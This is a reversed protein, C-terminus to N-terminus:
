VFVPADYGKDAGITVRHAGPLEGVMELAAAWEATGNALLLRSGVVLGNRNEMLAHGLLM